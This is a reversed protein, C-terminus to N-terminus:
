GNLVGRRSPEDPFNEGLGDARGLLARSIAGRGSSVCRRFVRRFIQGSGHGCGAGVYHKLDPPSAHVSGCSDRLRRADHGGVGRLCWEGGITSNFFFDTRAPSSISLPQPIRMKPNEICVPNTKSSVKYPWEIKRPSDM